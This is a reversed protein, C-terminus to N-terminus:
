EKSNWFAKWSTGWWLRIGLRFHWPILSCTRNHIPLQSLFLFLTSIFLWNKWISAHPIGWFHTTPKTSKWKDMMFWFQTHATLHYFKHIVPFSKPHHFCLSFTFLELSDRYMPPIPWLSASSAWHVLIFVVIRFCYFEVNGGGGGGM